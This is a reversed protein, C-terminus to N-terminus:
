VDLNLRPTDAFEAGQPKEPRGKWVMEFIQRMTNAIDPNDILVGQLYQSSIIQVFNDCVEISVNSDYEESSVIKLNLLHRTKSKVWEITKVDETTIGRVSIGREERKNTWDEWLSMMEPSNKQARAYFGLIEKNEMAKLTKKYMEKIGDISEYYTISVKYDKGKSLAKLEPLVHKANSMKAEAVSFLEDPSVAVYRLINERPIKNVAGKKILQELIVYTTPKKLGSHKAVYYATGRGLQLLAVYVKAEKENLGIGQLAEVLNM